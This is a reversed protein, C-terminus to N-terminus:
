EEALAALHDRFSSTLSDLERKGKEATALSPYGHAGTETYRSM